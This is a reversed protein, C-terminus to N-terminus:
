GKLGLELINEMLEKSEEKHGDTWGIAPCGLSRRGCYILTEECEINDMVRQIRPEVYSFGGSNLPEEQVWAFKCNKGLNNEKLLNQLSEEPFPLLEEITILGVNKAFTENKDLLSQIEYTIKGTCLLLLRKSPSLNSSLIPQFSTGLSIDAFTSKAKPHRLVLCNKIKIYNKINKAIYM